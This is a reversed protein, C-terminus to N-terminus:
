REVQLHRIYTFACISNSLGADAYHVVQSVWVEVATSWTSIYSVNIFGQPSCPFCATMLVIIGDFHFLQQNVMMLNKFNFLLILNLVHILLLTHQRWVPETLRKM